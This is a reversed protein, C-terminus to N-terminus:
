EAGKLLKILKKSYKVYAASHAASSAASNAASNAAHAANYASYAAHHAASSAANHAASSAASIAAHAASNAANYAANYAASAAVSHIASDAASHAASSAAYAASNAANKNAETPKKQYQIALDIADNCQKIIPDNIKNVSLMSARADELIFILFKSKVKSLDSGVKIAELFEMPWKKAEENPMGEFLKDEVLALWEPIGLETEYAAHKDSHITCGVACGKGNEWYKGKIIEDALFHAKVRKLYKAKISAKNHFSKM